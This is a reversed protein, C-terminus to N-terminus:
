SSSSEYSVYVSSLILSVDYKPTAADRSRQHTLELRSVSWLPQADRWAALFSGLERPQLGTLSLRLSQRRYAASGSSALELKVDSEPTLSSFTRQSLGAHELVENIRAILDRTPHEAAAIVPRHSRLALVENADQLAQEYAALSTRESQVAARARQWNLMVAIALLGAVIAFLVVVRSTV